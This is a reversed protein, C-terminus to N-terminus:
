PNSQVRNARAQPNLVRTPRGDLYAEIIQAVSEAFLHYTRDAPWGLHPALVVSDLRRLPSDAPLPEVAYVDLAAGGLAGEGLVRCLAAEDVIAGRATNVLLGRPGIRWLRAEDLLGRSQDSLKLHVTVIDAAELLADLEMRTAGSEAARADTLSPGWALLEADFARAIRAVVRGIRGLGLIGLKKGALTRGMLSPWGGAQMGRDALHLQRLAALM